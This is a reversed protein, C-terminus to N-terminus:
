HKSCSGTPTRQGSVGPMCARGVTRDSSSFDGDLKSALDPVPLDGIRAQLIRLLKPIGQTGDFERPKLGKLATKASGSLKRALKSAILRRDVPKVSWFYWQIDELYQNWHEEERSWSPVNDKDHSGSM